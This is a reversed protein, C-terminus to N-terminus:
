YCLQVNKNRSSPVTNNFVSHGTYISTMTLLSNIPLLTYNSPGPLQGHKRCLYNPEGSVATPGPEQTGVTSSPGDVQSGM